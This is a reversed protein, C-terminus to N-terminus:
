QKNCVNLVVCDRWAAYMLVVFSNGEPSGTTFPKTDGWNLPNVAPTAIGSSSIYLATTARIRDAWAIYEHGFDSPRLVVMRYAVAALMSTGSIEGFGHGNGRTDDLYNRLLGGDMPFSMAADLIEQIWRSLDSIAASRWSASAAAPAKIVTALVRAM